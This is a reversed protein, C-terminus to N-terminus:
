VHEVIFQDEVLKMKEVLKKLLTEMNLLGHLIRRRRDRQTHELDSKKYIGEGQRISSEYRSAGNFINQISSEIHLILGETHITLKELHSGYHDNYETATEVDRFRQFVAHIPIVM